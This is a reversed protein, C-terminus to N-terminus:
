RSCTTIFLALVQPGTILGVLHKLALTSQGPLISPSGMPLETASTSSASTWDTWSVPIAMTLAVSLVCSTFTFVPATLVQSLRSQM